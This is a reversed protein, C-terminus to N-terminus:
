ACMRGARRGRARPSMPKKKQQAKKRQKNIEFAKVSRSVDPRRLPRKERQIGCALRGIPCWPFSAFVATMSDSKRLVGRFSSGGRAARGGLAAEVGVHEVDCLEGPPTCAVRLVPDLGSRLTLMSWASSAAIRARAAFCTSFRADDAADSLM